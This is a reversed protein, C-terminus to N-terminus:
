DFGVKVGWGVVRPACWGAFRSLTRSHPMLWLSLGLLRLPWVARWTSCRVTVYIQDAQLAV